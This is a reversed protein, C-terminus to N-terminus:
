YARLKEGITPEVNQVVGDVVAVGKAEGDLVKMLFEYKELVGAEFLARVAHQRAALQGSADGQRLQRALEISPPM